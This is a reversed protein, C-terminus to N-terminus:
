QRAEEHVDHWIAQMAPSSELLTDLTGEAVVRGTDLLVIRTAARLAAHSHSVALCTLGAQEKLRSWLLRETDGDLGSSVDDILLLSAERVFMRAAALRLVQGGSLRVGRPGVLTELGHELTAVDRELVAAHLARQLLAPEDPLGLLVNDRLRESFLTPSQPTYAVAPPRLLTAPAAVRQGNWSIDGAEAPLLGLITQLLTTKGSGIRGTVVVLEGARLRLDIADIGKDTGPYHYTLGRVELTTLRSLTGAAPSAPQDPPLTILAPPAAAPALAELRAVSVGAQRYDLLWRAIEDGFWTLTQLYTVFLAFDGVTISGAQMLRSAVLLIVGTGLNVLNMNFADLIGTFLHDRLATQRRHENLASLRDLVHTAAGALKVAQVAVLLSVLFSTSQAQADRSQVRLAVLPRRAQNVAIVVITLPVFAGITLEVSIRLMIVLASILAVTRSFLDTWADISEVVQKVDDRLRDLAAGASFPLTAFRPSYIIASLMNRRLMAMGSQLVSGWFFSLGAGALMGGLETLAFLIIIATLPADAVTASGTLTDFFARTVLGLPIPLGFVALSCLIAAAFTLLNARMLWFVIRYTKM